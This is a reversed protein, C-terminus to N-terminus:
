LVKYYCSRLTKPGILPNKTFFYYTIEKHARRFLKVLLNLDSGRTLPTRSDDCSDASVGVIPNELFNQKARKHLLRRFYIDTGHWGTLREDYGGVNWYLSRQMSFTNVHPHVDDVGKKRPFSYFVDEKPPNKLVEHITECPILHDIDTLLLTAGNAEYAGINRAAHQNWPKDYKIRYITVNTKAKLTQPPQPALEQSGDDIIIIEIKQLIENDCALFNHYHRQLTIPNNYYTLIISLACSKEQKEM